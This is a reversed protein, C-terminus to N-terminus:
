ELVELRLTGAEVIDGPVLEIPRVTRAGNLLLPLLSRDAELVPQPGDFRVWLRPAIQLRRGALLRRGQDVGKIVRLDLGEPEAGAGAGEAVLISFAVQCREGLTLEGSGSLEVTGAIRLGALLTGNRSGLDRLRYGGERVIEAHRRSIGVDHLPLTCEPDRGLGILQDPSLGVTEGGLRVSLRQGGSLGRALRDRLPLYGGAMTAAAICKELAALAGRRNGEALFLQYDAFSDKETRRRRSEAEARAYAAEMQEVEGAQGYAEAAKEDNGLREFARAAEDWRGAESLLSAAEELLVRDPAGEHGHDEALRELVRGLEGKVRKQDDAEDVWRLARRLREAREPRSSADEAHALHMELVKQRDDVEAYLAAATLYDGAAEAAQARRRTGWAGPALLRTLFGV